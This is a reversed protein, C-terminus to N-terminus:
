FHPTETTLVLKLIFSSLETVSNYLLTKQVLPSSSGALLPEGRTGHGTEWPLERIDTRDQKELGKELLSKYEAIVAKGSQWRYSLLTM